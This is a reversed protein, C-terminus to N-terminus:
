AIVPQRGFALGAAHDDIAPAAALVAAALDKFRHNEDVGTPVDAYWPLEFLLTAESFAASAEPANLSVDAQLEGTTRGPVGAAVRRDVLESVLERYRALVADKWRGDSEAAEAESRWERQTRPAEVVPDDDPEVEAKPARVWTRAVRVIIWILLAVLAALILYLLLSSGGASGGGTRVEPRSFHFQRALWRLFRDLLSLKRQFEGRKFVQAATARTAQRTPADAFM